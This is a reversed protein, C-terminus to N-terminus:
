VLTVLGSLGDLECRLGPEAAYEVNAVAGLAELRARTPIPIPTRVMFNTLQVQPLPNSAPHRSLGWGILFPVVGDLDNVTDRTLRWSLLEGTKTRRSMAQAAGPDYGAARAKAICADLDDPRVAWTLLRPERLQDLGFWRPPGQGDPDPGIIELYATPGLGILYNATGQGSHRGGPVPEVGTLQQLQRVGALLDPVGYVLHDFPGLTVLATIASSGVEDVSALWRM